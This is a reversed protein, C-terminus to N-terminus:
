PLCFKLRRLDIQTVTQLTTRTDITVWPTSTVGIM